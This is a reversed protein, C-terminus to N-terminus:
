NHPRNVGDTKQDQPWPPRDALIGEGAEAEYHLLTLTPMDNEQARIWTSEAPGYSLQRCGGHWSRRVLSKLVRCLPSTHHSTPKSPQHSM